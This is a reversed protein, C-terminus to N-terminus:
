EARTEPESAATADAALEALIREAEEREPFDGQELADRLLEAGGEVRGALILARGLLFQTSPANPEEEGARHLARIAKAPEGRAIHLRVYSALTEASRSFRLARRALALAEPSNAQGSEILADVLATAADAHRPDRLLVLRMRPTAESSGHDRLLRAAAYVPDPDEPAADAARDYLAVAKQTEGARAAIDALHRLADGSSADSDLARLFTDRAEDISGAAELTSGRLVLLEPHDPHARLADDIRALAAPQDGLALLAETLVGLVSVLAPDRLDLTSEEVARVVAEAGQDRAAVGLAFALARENHEPRARYRALISQAIKPNGNRMAIEFASEYAAADHPAQSLYTTIVSLADQHLDRSALLQALQLGADTHAEGARLAEKYESEARAFDGLQEAAQAALYRATAGDPWLRIGESLLALARTANGRALELRGRTVHRYVPEHLADIAEEAAAYEGLQILLDARMLSWEPPALGPLLTLAHELADLAAARDELALYHDALAAWAEPQEDVVERLLRLAEEPDGARLRDALAVRRPLNEPNAVLADRLTQTAQEHKGLRDLFDATASIVLAQNPYSGLCDIYAAEAGEVDGNEFTFSAEAICYRGALQARQAPPMGEVTDIGQRLAAMVDAAEDGRELQLLANLKAMLLGLDDPVRDLGREIDELADSERSVRLKAAARLRLAAEDDPADQLVRDLSVIADDFSGSAIQARALLLGAEVAHAPDDAVKALSWVALSPRGTQVLVQAYSLNLGLHDPDEALGERLLDLAREPRGEALELEAADLFDQTDYGCAAGLLLALSAFLHTGCRSV